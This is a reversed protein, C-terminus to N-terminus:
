RQKERTTEASIAQEMLSVAGFEKSSLDQTSPGLQPSVAAVSLDRRILLVAEKDAAVVRWNGDKKLHAHLPWEVPLLASEFRYKDMIEAWEPSG